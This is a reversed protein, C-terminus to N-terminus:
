RGKLAEGRKSRVLAWAPQVLLARMYGNGSKTIGGYKGAVRQRM